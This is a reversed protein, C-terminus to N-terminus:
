RLAYLLIFLAPVHVRGPTINAAPLPHPIHWPLRRPHAQSRNDAPHRPPLPPRARPRRCLRLLVGSYVFVPARRTEQADPCPLPLRACLPECLLWVREGWRALADRLRAELTGGCLQSSVMVPYEPFRDALYEPVLTRPTIPLREPPTQPAHFYVWADQPVDGDPLARPPVIFLEEAGCRSLVSFCGTEALAQPPFDFVTM